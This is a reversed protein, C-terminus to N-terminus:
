NADKVVKNVCDDCVYDHSKKPVGTLLQENVANLATVKEGCNDCPAPDADDALVEFRKVVDKDEPITNNTKWWNYENVYKGSLIM